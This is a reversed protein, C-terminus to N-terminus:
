PKAEDPNGSLKILNGKRTAKCAMAFAPDQDETLEVNLHTEDVLSLIGDYTFNSCTAHVRAATVEITWILGGPGTRDCPTLYGSSIHNPLHPDQTLGMRKGALNIDLPPDVKCRMHYEGTVYQWTGQFPSVMPTTAEGGGCALLGLLLTLTFHKIAM